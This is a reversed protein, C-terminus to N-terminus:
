GVALKLHLELAKNQLVVLLLEYYIMTFLSVKQIMGSIKNELNLHIIVAITM